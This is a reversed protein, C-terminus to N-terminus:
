RSIGCIVVIIFELKCICVCLCMNQTVKCFCASTFLRRKSSPSNQWVSGNSKLCAAVDAACTTASGVRSSDLALLM